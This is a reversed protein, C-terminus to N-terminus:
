LGCGHAGVTDNNAIADAEIALIAVNAIIRWVDGAAHNVGLTFVYNLGALGAGIAGFYAVEDDISPDPGLLQNEEFKVGGTFRSPAKMAARTSTADCALSGEALLETAAAAIRLTPACGVFAVVLGLMALMGLLRRRLQEEDHGALWEHDADRLAKSATDAAACSFTVGALKTRDGRDGVLHDRANEGDHLASERGEVGAAEVM